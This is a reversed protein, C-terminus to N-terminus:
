GSIPLPPLHNHDMNCYATKHDEPPLHSAKLQKQTLIGKPGRNEASTGNCKISSKFGYLPKKNTTRRDTESRMICDHKVM